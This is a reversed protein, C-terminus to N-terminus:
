NGLKMRSTDANCHYTSLSMGEHNCTSKMVTYFFGLM